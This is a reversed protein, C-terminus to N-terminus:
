LAGVLWSLALCALAIMVLEAGGSHDTLYSLIGLVGCMIGLPILLLWAIMRAIDVTLIIVDM